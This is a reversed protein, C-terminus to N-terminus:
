AIFGAKRTPNEYIKSLKDTEDTAQVRNIKPFFCCFFFVGFFGSLRYPFLLWKLNVTQMEQKHWLTQMQTQTKTFSACNTQIMLLKFEILKSYFWVIPLPFTAMKLKCKKNIRYLRSKYNFKEHFKCLKDIDDVAQFRNIKFFFFDSSRYPFILWKLNIIQM